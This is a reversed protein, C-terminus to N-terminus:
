VFGFVNTRVMCLIKSSKGESSIVTDGKRLYKIKKESGDFMKVLCDGDICGGYNNYYNSM